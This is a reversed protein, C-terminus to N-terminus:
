FYNGLKVIILVDKAGAGVYTSELIRYVDNKSLLCNISCHNECKKESILNKARVYAYRSEVKKM